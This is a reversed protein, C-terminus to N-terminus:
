QMRRTRACLNFSPWSKLAIANGLILKDKIEERRYQLLKYDYKVGSDLVVINDGTFDTYSKLQFSGGSIFKSLEVAIPAPLLPDNLYKLFEFPENRRNGDLLIVANGLRL